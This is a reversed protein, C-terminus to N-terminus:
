ALETTPISLDEGNMLKVTDIGQLPNGDAKLQLSSGHLDLVLAKASTCEHNPTQARLADGEAKAHQILELHTIRRKDNQYRSAVSRIAPHLGHIFM